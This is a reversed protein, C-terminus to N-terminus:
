ATNDSVPGYPTIGDSQTNVAWLTETTEAVGRLEVTTTVTEPVDSCRRTSLVHHYQQVHTAAHLSEPYLNGLRRDLLYQVRQSIVVVEVDDHHTRM